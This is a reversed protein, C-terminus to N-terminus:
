VLSIHDDGEEPAFALVSYPYDAHEVDLGIVVVPKNVGDERAAAAANSMFRDRDVIPQRKFLYAVTSSRRELPGSTLLFTNTHRPVIWYAEVIKRLRNTEAEFTIQDSHSVRLLNSTVETWNISQRLEVQAILDRWWQTMNLRPKDTPVGHSRWLFWPDLAKSLGWLVLPTGDVESEGINFGTDLFFALLDLEDGLYRTRSEIQARRVLYHIRQAQSDLVDVVTELDSLSVSLTPTIDSPIFGAEGLASWGAIKLDLNELTIGMTLVHRVATTDIANSKGSRTQFLHVKRETQLVQAFRRAQKSPEVLLETVANQIRKEGGRRAPETMKGSKAEVVVLHTDLLMTLDNEYEVQDTEDRWCSGRWFQAAPFARKLLSETEDELFPGRGELYDTWLQEDDVIVQEMLELCFSVLLGVNPVLYTGDGLRVLPAKWVPNGLFLHEPNGTSLEGFSLSWKELIPELIAPAINVPYASVFDATEFTFLDPTRLDAHSCLMAQASELSVNKSAFFALMAEPASTIEPIADFYDRVADEISTARLIPFLVESFYANIRDEVQGLIRQLMAVLHEIRVGKRQETSSEFARFLGTVTRAMQDPYGWNRIAQTHVRLDELTRLRQLEESSLNPQLVRLRRSHFLRATDQLLSRLKTLQDPTCANNTFDAISTRLLLGHLLEVHHQLIPDEGDLEPDRGPTTTLSYLALTSLAWLPNLTLVLQQLESFVAAFQASHEEGQARLLEVVEEQTLGEFPSSVSRYTIRPLTLSPSHRGKRNRPRRHGKSMHKAVM